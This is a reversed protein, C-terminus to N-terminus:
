KKSKELDSLKCFDLKESAEDEPSSLYYRELINAPHVKYGPYHKKLDKVSFLTDPGENIHRVEGNSILETQQPIQKM